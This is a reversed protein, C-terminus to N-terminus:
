HGLAQAAGAMALAAELPDILAITIAIPVRLRAGARDIQADRPKPLAAVEPDKELRPPHGLLREGRDNLFCHRSTASWTLKCTGFNALSMFSTSGSARARM